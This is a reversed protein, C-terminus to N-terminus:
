LEGSLIMGRRKSPENCVVLVDFMGREADSNRGTFILRLNVFVAGPLTKYWHPSVTTKHEALTSV